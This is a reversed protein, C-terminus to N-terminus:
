DDIQIQLYIHDDPAKTLRYSVSHQTDNSFRVSATCKREESSSDIEKIDNFDIAFIGNTHLIPIQKLTKQALNKSFPADCSPLGNLMQVPPVILWFAMTILILGGVFWEYFSIKTQKYLSNPHGCHPCNKTAASIEKNCAQCAVM